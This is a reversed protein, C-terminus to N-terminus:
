YYLDMRFKGEAVEAELNRNTAAIVRCDINLPKEAGLVDITKQQLVRLLKMQMDPNLEGVEDLFITGGNAQEFKGRQKQIAGTFAGAEHGFLISEVLTPALGACNVTVFPGDKRPSLQHIATAVLEKGTGTEGLILVSVDTPAVTRMDEMVTLLSPSQGLIGHLSCPSLPNAIPRTGSGRYHFKKRQEHLYLAIDIAILLDKDRFPKVLFGYPETPRAMNLTDPNSNASLYLFAIGKERLIRGLQIGTQSGKLFIDLLVLDPKESELNNLASTVSREIGTCRYGARTILAQVFDAEVFEDEVILIKENM